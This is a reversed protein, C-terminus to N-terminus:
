AIAGEQAFMVALFPQRLGLPGTRAGPKSSGCACRRNFPRNRVLIIAEKRQRSPRSHPSATSFTAASLILALNVCDHKLCPPSLPINNRLIDGDLCLIERSNQQDVKEVTDPMFFRELHLRFPSSPEFAVVLGM